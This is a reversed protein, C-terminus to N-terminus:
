TAGLAAAAFAAAVAVALAGTALHLARELGPVRAARALPAGLAGSM